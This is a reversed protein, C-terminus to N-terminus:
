GSKFPFFFTQFLLFWFHWECIIHSCLSFRKWYVSFYFHNFNQLSALYWDLTQFCIINKCVMLVILFYLSWKCHHGWPLRGPFFYPFSIVISSKFFYLGHSICESPSALPCRSHLMSFEVWYETIIWTPFSHSLAHRHM